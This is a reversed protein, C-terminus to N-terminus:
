FLFGYVIADNVLVHTAAVIGLTALIKDKAEVGIGAVIAMPVVCAILLLRLPWKSVGRQVCSRVIPLFALQLLYYAVISATVINIKEDSADDKTGLIGIFAWNCVYAVCASILLYMRLGPPVSGFDTDNNPKMIAYSVWLAVNSAVFASTLLFQSNRM